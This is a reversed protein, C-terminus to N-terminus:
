FALTLTQVILITLIMMEGLTTKIRILIKAIFPFKSKLIKEIRKEYDEADKEQM